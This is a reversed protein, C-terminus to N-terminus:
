VVMHAGKGLWKETYGKVDVNYPRESGKVRHPGEQPQPNRPHDAGARLSSSCYCSAYVTAGADL